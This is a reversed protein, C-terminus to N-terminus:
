RGRPRRTQESIRGDRTTARVVVEGRAGLRVYESFAGDSLTRVAVGDVTLAALPSARGTVRVVGRSVQELEEVLLAPPGASPSAQPPAPSPAAPLISFLAVRSFAGELGDATVGAVRWFYRGPGMGTLEHSTGTIGPVDLAAALLLDAQTVNFDMAVRYSAAGAAATWRLTTVAAPSAAYPLVSRTAPALLAPAPPLPLPVGARGAADVQVAQNESLSVRQGLATRLEAQGRFIKFGTGQENVDLQGAANAAARTRASPSDIEQETDGVAFSVHGSDVRWATTSSEATGGVFVISDPRVQVVSGSDFSIQAGSRPDTQVTDGVHLLLSLRAELWEERENPRVRVRGEVGTLRAIPAGPALAPSRGFLWWYAVLAVLAVGWGGLRL